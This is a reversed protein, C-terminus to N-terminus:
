WVKTGPRWPRRSSTATSLAPIHPAISSSQHSARRWRERCGVGGARCGRARYIDGWLATGAVCTRAESLFERFRVQGQRTLQTEIRAIQEEVTVTIPTVVEGVAPAPLADLAEQVYALLDTLAVNGLDPQPEPRPLPAIRVYGRLGQKEREHLLAAVEKFRKYAQLQRVLEEGVDEEEPTLVPPQPLLAQSKILLLKAAVVLFDALEEVQRRELEALYALYQDTVQALAITTIDLEEREVLHLLLDLPGEFVPLQVQYQETM